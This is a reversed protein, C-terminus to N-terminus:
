YENVFFRMLSGENFNVGSQDFISEGGSYLFM